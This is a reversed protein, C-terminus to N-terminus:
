DLLVKSYKPNNIENQFDSQAESLSKFHKKECTSNEKKNEIVYVYPEWNPPAIQKQLEKDKKLEQEPVILEVARFTDDPDM